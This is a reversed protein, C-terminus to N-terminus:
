PKDGDPVIDDLNPNAGPGPDTVGGADQGPAAGDAPEGSPEPGDVIYQFDKWSLKGHFFNESIMDEPRSIRFARRSAEVGDDLEPEPAPYTMHLQQGLVERIAKFTEPDMGDPVPVDPRISIRQGEAFRPAPYDAWWSRDEVRDVRFAVQNLIWMSQHKRVPRQKFNWCAGCFATGGSRFLHFTIKSGAARDANIMEQIHHDCGAYRWVLGESVVAAVEVFHRAHKKAPNPTYINDEM